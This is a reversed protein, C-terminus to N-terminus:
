FCKKKDTVVRYINNSHYINKNEFVKLANQLTEEDM